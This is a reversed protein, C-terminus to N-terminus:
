RDTIEEDDPEDDDPVRPAPSPKHGLIAMAHAYEEATMPERGGTGSNSIM